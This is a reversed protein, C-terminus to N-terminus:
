QPVTDVIVRQLGYEGGHNAVTFGAFPGQIGRDLADLVVRGDIAVTMRGQRDRKWVVEHDAGDALATPGEFADLVNMRGGQRRVLELSPRGAPLYNLRYGHDLGQDLYPGFSFEGGRASANIVAQIAFGNNFGRPLYIRAATPEPAPAPAAPAEALQRGQQRALEEIFTGIIREAPGGQRPAPQEGPLAAMERPRVSSRLGRQDVWWEGEVVTWAPNRTYDGDRFSDEIVRVTWLWSYRDTVQELDRLFGPDALRQREARTILQQIETMARNLTDRPIQEQSAAPWAALSLALGLALSRGFRTGRTDSYGM